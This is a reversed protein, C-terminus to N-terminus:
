KRRKRGLSLALGMMVLAISAPEPVEGAGLGANPHYARWKGHPLDLEFNWLDGANAVTFNNNGASNGFDVGISTGWDGQKRFKFEYSGATPMSFSGTYLGNGQDTLNYAPDNTGPWGNFSGIVEWGFQQPDDYGMRSANAPSWGDGWSAGDLKYYHLKIDGNLDATIKSPSAPFFAGADSRLVSVDYAQGATLGSLTTGYNGGGQDTLAVDAGFSGHALWSAKNGFNARWENYKAANGPTHDRWYVYDAADTNGDANFDGHQSTSFFRFRGNPLDLDFQWVDGNAAVAFTNNGSTNGFDSGITTNWVGNPPAIEQPVLGRFKFDYIGANFAFQGSYLGNGQNTLAYAPDFAGGPWGNFGGVIEWGFYGPDTYGVRRANNPLWGDSWSTSDYLNITVDGDANSYVLGNSGPQTLTNTWNEDAVKYEYSLNPGLFQLNAQYHGGGLDTMPNDLSWGNFAGRAYFTTQASAQAALLSVVVFACLRRM